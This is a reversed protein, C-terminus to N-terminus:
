PCGLTAQECDGPTAPRFDSSDTGAGCSWAGYNFTTIGGSAMCDNGGEGYVFTSTGYGARLRLKDDGDGGYMTIKKTWADIIDNGGYGYCFVPSNWDGTCNMYDAGPSGNVSVAYGNQVLATNFLYNTGACSINKSTGNGVVYVESFTATGVDINLPTSLGSGLNTWTCAGDPNRWYVVWNGTYGSIQGVAVSVPSGPYPNSVYTNAQQISEVEPEAGCAGLALVAITLIHKLHRM